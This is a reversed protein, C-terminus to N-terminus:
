QRFISHSSWCIHSITPPPQVQADHHQGKDLATPPGEAAPEHPIESPEHEVWRRRLNGLVRAKGDGHEHNCGHVDAGQETKESPRLRPASQQESRHQDSVNGETRPSGQGPFINTPQHKAAYRCHDGQDQHDQKPGSGALDRRDPRSESRSGTTHTRSAASRLSRKTDRQDIFASRKQSPATRKSISPGSGMNKPTHRSSTWSGVAWELAARLNPLGCASSSQPGKATSSSREAASPNGTSRPWSSSVLRLACRRRTPPSARPPISARKSDATSSASILACVSSPTPTAPISQPSKSWRPRSFGRSMSCRRSWGSESAQACLSSSRSPWTTPEDIWCRESRLDM